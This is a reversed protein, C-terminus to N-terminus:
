DYRASRSRANGAWICCHIMFFKLKHFKKFFPTQMIQEKVFFPSVKRGGFREEFEKIYNKVQPLQIARLFRDSDIGIPFQTKLECSEITLLKLSLMVQYLMNVRSYTLLDYTFVAAVRTLRGQDEVGDPTGELGLIRTCASVFHRAYDYTHFRFIFSFIKLRRSTLLV